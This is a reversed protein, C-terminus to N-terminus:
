EEMLFPHIKYDEIKIVKYGEDELREGLSETLPYVTFTEWQVNETFGKAEVYGQINNEDPNIYDYGAVLELNYSYAIENAGLQEVSIIKYIFKDENIVHTPAYINMRM